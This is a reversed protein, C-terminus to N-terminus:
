TTTNVIAGSVTFTIASGNTCSGNPSDPPNPQANVSGLASPDLLHLQSGFSEWRVVYSVGDVEGTGLGVSRGCYGIGHGSSTFALGSDQCTGNLRWEFSRGTQVPSGAYNEVRPVVPNAAPDTETIEPDHSPYYLGHRPRTSGDDVDTWEGYSGQGPAPADASVQAPQAVVACGQPAATVPAPGAVLGLALLGVGATGVFATRVGGLM